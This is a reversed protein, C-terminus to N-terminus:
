GPSAQRPAKGPRQGKGKAMTAPKTPCPPISTMKAASILQPANGSCTRPAHASRRRRALESPAALRGGVGRASRLASRRGAKQASQPHKAQKPQVM